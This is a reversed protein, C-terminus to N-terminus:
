NTGIYGPSGPGCGTFPCRLLSSKLQYFSRLYIISSLNNSETLGLLSLFRDLFHSNSFIYLSTIALLSSVGVFFRLSSFRLSLTKFVMQMSDYFLISVTFIVSFMLTLPHVSSFLIIGLANIAILISCFVGYYSFKSSLFYLRSVFYLLSSCYFLSAFSKESFFICLEDFPNFGLIYLLM